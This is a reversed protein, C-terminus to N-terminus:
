KERNPSHPELGDNGDRVHEVPDLLNGGTPLRLAMGYAPLGDFETSISFNESGRGVEAVDQIRVQSGDPTMKLLINEFQEPTQLRTKGIVTASLQVGRNAPLGGLQGSSVQVNQARIANAVDAPTLQFSNLREPDLWIRM